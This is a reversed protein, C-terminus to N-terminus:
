SHSERSRASPAVASEDCTADLPKLSDIVNPPATMEEAQEALFSEEATAPAVRAARRRFEFIDKQLGRWHDDRAEEAAQLEQTAVALGEADHEDEDVSVQKESVKNLSDMFREAGTALYEAFELAKRLKGLEVAEATMEAERAILGDRLDLATIGLRKADAFFNDLRYPKSESLTKLVDPWEVGFKPGFSILTGAFSTCDAKHPRDDVLFDGKQGLLGKNHTVIIRRKLEPLHELVWEVKGAYAHAVGTPPKTAIFVEYGMGIVSRVAELAGPRPKMAAYAGVTAKLEDGTKGTEAMHGEFDVIVGDMDLFVRPKFAAQKHRSSLNTM